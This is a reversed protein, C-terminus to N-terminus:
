LVITKSNKLKEVITACNFYLARDVKSTKTLFINRLMWGARRIEDRTRLMANSRWCIMELFIVRVIRVVRGLLKQVTIYVVYVRWIYVYLYSGDESPVNLLNYGYSFEVRDTTSLMTTRVYVVRVYLMMMHAHSIMEPSFNCPMVATWTRACTYVCGNPFLYYENDRGRLLCYYCRIIRPSLDYRLESDYGAVHITYM